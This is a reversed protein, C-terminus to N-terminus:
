NNSGKVSRDKAEGSKLYTGAKLRVNTQWWRNVNHSLYGPGVNGLRYQKSLNEVKIVTNSM